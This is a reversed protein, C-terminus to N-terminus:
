FSETVERYEHQRLVHIIRENDHPVVVLMCRFQSPREYTRLRSMDLYMHGPEGCFLSYAPSTSMLMGYKTWPRELNVEFVRLAQNGNEDKAFKVFALWSFWEAIKEGNAVVIGVPGHDKQFESLYLARPPGPPTSHHLFGDPSDVFLKSDDFNERYGKKGLFTVFRRCDDSSFHREHISPFVLRQGNKSIDAFTLTENAPDTFPKLKLWFVGIDTAVCITGTVYNLIVSFVVGGKRMCTISASPGTIIAPSEKCIEEWVAIQDCSAMLTGVKAMQDQQSIKTLYKELEVSRDTPDSIFMLPQRSPDSDTPWQRRAQEDLEETILIANKDYTSLRGSITIEPIADLGLTDGKGYPVKCLAEAATSEMLEHWAGIVANVCVNCYAREIGQM